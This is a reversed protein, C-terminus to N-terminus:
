GAPLRFAPSGMLGSASADARMAFRLLSDTSEKFRPTTIATM